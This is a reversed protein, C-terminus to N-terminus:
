RNRLSSRLPPIDNIFSELKSAMRKISVDDSKTLEKLDYWRYDNVENKDINVLGEECTQYLYRVDFHWHEPEFIGNKQREPIRHIDIDFIEHSLPRLYEIGTEEKTERFSAHRADEAEEVHGGPAVWKNYKKHLVLFAKENDENTIFASGTIHGILNTRSYIYKDSYSMLFAILVDKNEVDNKNLYTLIKDKEM